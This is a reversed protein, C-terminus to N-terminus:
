VAAKERAGVRLAEAVLADQEHAFAHHSGPAPSALERRGIYRLARHSALGEVKGDLFQERVFRWAGM